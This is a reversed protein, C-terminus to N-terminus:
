RSLQGNRASGLSFTPPGYKLQFHSLWTQESPLEDLIVKAVLFYSEGEIYEQLIESADAGLSFGNIDLWTNLGEGETASVVALEYEGVAFLSEIQVSDKSPESYESQAFSIEGNRSRLRLLAGLSEM